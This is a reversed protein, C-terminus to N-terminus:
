NSDLILATSSINTLLGEAQKKGEIILQNLWGCGFAAESETCFEKSGIITCTSHNSYFRYISVSFCHRTTNKM